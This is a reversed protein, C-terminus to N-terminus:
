SGLIWRKKKLLGWVVIVMLILCILYPSIYNIIGKRAFSGILYYTFFYQFLIGFAILSKNKNTQRFHGLGCLFGSVSFFLCLVGQWFRELLESKIDIYREFDIDQRELLYNSKKMLPIIESFHIFGPKYGVDFYYEFAPLAYDLQKFTLKDMATRDEGRVIIDGDWLKLHNSLKLDDDPIVLQGTSAFIIKEEKDMNEQYIFVNEMKFTNPDIKDAFFVSKPIETFFNGSRMQSLMAKSQVSAVIKRGYARASPILQVLSSWLLIAVLSSVTIIPYLTRKLSFGLSRMATYESSSSWKNACYISSFFLALPLAMPLTGLTFSSITLFIENWPTEQAFMWGLVKFLQFSMLFFILFISSIIFVLFYSWAVYAYIILM